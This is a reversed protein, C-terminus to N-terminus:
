LIHFILLLCKIKLFMVYRCIDKHLHEELFAAADVGSHGDYVAFYGHKFQNDSTLSSTACSNIVHRSINEDVVFRDENTKRPGLRSCSGSIWRLEINDINHSESQADHEELEFLLENDDVSGIKLADDSYLTENSLERRISQDSMTLSEPSFDKRLSQFTPKQEEFKMAIKEEQIEIDKNRAIPIINTSSLMTAPAYSSSLQRVFSTDYDISKQRNFLEAGNSAPSDYQTSDFANKRFITNSTMLNANQIDDNSELPSFITSPHSALGSSKLHTVKRSGLNNSTVSSKHMTNDQDRILISLVLAVSKQFTFIWNKM